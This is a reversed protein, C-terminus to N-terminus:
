QYMILNPTVEMYVSDAYPDIGLAQRETMLPEDWRYFLKFAGFQTNKDVFANYKGIKGWPDGWGDASITLAVQSFNPDLQDKNVIMDDQFQHVLLVRPGEIKHETMYTQMTAQVQNVQEATIFGIPDGPWAQGKHAMAFEPDIALHVNKYRLWPLAPKLADAPKLAGIQVDLIVAFHEKEAREVYAKVVEDALFALYSNDDGPAKTAMGYVLHFAPLVSLQDGNAQDYRQAAQKLLETLKDLDYEGLIGMIPTDPRGYYTLWTTKYFPSTPAAKQAALTMREIITGRSVTLPATNSIAASVPFQSPDPLAGDSGPIALVMGVQIVNADAIHNIRLLSDMEVQFQQAILFLTDGAQVSYYTPATVTGTTVQTPTIATLPVSTSIASTSIFTTATIVTTVTSTAVESPTITSTATVEAPWQMTTVQSMRGLRGALQRDIAFEVDDAAGVAVAFHQGRWERWVGPLLVSQYVIVQDVTITISSANHAYVGLIHLSEAPQAQVRAVFSFSCCSAVLFIVLWYYRLFRKM